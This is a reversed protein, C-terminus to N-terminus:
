ATRNRMLLQAGGIGRLWSQGIAAAKEMLSRASGIARWYRAETGLTQQHWQHESLGLNRLIPPESMDIRGSKDGRTLRATWDILDLYAEATIPLTGPATTNNISALPWQATAPESRLNKIRQVASTHASTELNEAIGARIPNLDVYSMCTLVATDDLLAQCKYRGEWFRGTCADERNARRAIPENLAKMFWALSGLRQRCSSLRDPNGLLTQEKLRCAATDTEGAVTAPFLRVWRLAVEADSWKAAATPDIRLVVHVHNSMVAYAYIGVAFIQALELLRQEVWARRHEYSKGDYPDVGCLWARRVCRSICHYFGPNEPDVLLHRATTM